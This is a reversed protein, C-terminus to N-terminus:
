PKRRECNWDGARSGDTGNRQRVQGTPGCRAEASARQDDATARGGVTEPIQPGESKKWTVSGCSSLALAVILLAAAKM